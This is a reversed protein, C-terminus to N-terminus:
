TKSHRSNGLAQLVMQTASGHFAQDILDNLMNTKVKPEPINSSYIHSRNDTNRTLLGKEIMIQMIKLSTTYGVERKKNLEDNITRVSSPGLSWIIQLIELEGDTPQMNSTM